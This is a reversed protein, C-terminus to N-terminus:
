GEICQPTTSSSTEVAFLAVISRKSAGTTTATGLTGNCKLFNQIVVNDVNTNTPATGPAAANLTWVVNTASAGDIISLKAETTWCGGATTPNCSAPLTSGNNNLKEGFAAMLAAADDRRQTNRANRNLAPVALFVVLMILGAIALVILVEIITFGKSQGSKKVFM